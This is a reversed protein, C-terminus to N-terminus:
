EEYLKHIRIADVGCGQLCLNCLTCEDEHAEVQTPYDDNSTFISVPCVQICKGCREIGLCRDFDIDLRIFEGMALEM